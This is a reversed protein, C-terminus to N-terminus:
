LHIGLAYGLTHGVGCMAVYKSAYGLVAYGLAYRTAYEKSYGVAYRVAYLLLYETTCAWNCVM